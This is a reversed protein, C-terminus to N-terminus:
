LHIISLGATSSPGTSFTSCGKLARFVQGATICCHFRVLCPVASKVRMLNIKSYMCLSAREQVPGNGVASRQYVDRSIQQTKKITKTENHFLSIWLQVRGNSNVYYAPGYSPRFIRPQWYYHPPCLRGRRTSIPNVSRGFDPVGLSSMGAYSM